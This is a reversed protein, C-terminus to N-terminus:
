LIGLPLLSSGIYGFILLYIFGEFFDDDGHHCQYHHCHNYCGGVWLYKYTGPVTEPLIGVKNNKSPPNYLSAHPIKTGGVPISGAGSVNSACLRLWQVM